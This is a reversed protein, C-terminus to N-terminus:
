GRAVMVLGERKEVLRGIIQGRAVVVQLEDREGIIKRMIRNELLVVKTRNALSKPEVVLASLSRRNLPSGPPAAQSEAM